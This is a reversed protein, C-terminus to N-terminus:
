PTVQLVFPKKIRGALRVIAEGVQLKHFEAAQDADLLGLSKVSDEIDKGHGQSFCVKSYSCSKASDALLAPQCEGILFGVGFERGFALITSMNSIAQQSQERYKPVLRKAEDFVALTRLTGGREENEIRHCIIQTLFTETFFSQADQKLQAMEFVVHHALIEALPYGQSCEIIKGLANCLSEIRNQIRVFWRYEESRRDVKKTLDLWKLYDRLDFLSPYIGHETDYRRYLQLLYKYTLNETSMGGYFGASNAFVSALIGAWQHWSRIPPELPNWHFDNGPLKFQWVEPFLMTLDQYDRKIDFVMIRVMMAISSALLILQKLLRRIFTTKGSGIRGSVYTGQVLEPRFLGFECESNRIQGLPLEGRAQDADIPPAFADPDVMQEVARRFLYERAVEAIRQNGTYQVSLLLGKVTEDEEVRGAAALSALTSLSPAGTNMKRNKNKFHSYSGKRKM